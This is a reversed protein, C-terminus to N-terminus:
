RGPVGQLYGRRRGEAVALCPARVRREPVGRRFPQAIGQGATRVTDVETAALLGRRYALHAGSERALLFRTGMQVGMGGLALVAVLGRGDVIGGAAVVPVGVADVVQPVLALTGVLPPEGDPGLDVVSRHGGAEAGKALVEDVGAAYARVADAVTTVMSMVLLDDEHAREVLEGPDGLAFSLVPAREEFVVDLQEDVSFTPPELETEGPPIGFRERFRDLFRQVAAVDHSGPGPPALLFNVAFPRDTLEKVSRIDERLREPPVGASALSGLGGANSVAGVLEPATWGGAMPAQILPNRVGLMDCLPTSLSARASAM